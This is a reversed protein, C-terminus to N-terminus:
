PIVRCRWVAGLLNGDQGVEGGPSQDPFVGYSSPGEVVSIQSVVGGLTDDSLIAQTLSSASQPDMMSLLLSQGGINDATTVRARVSLFYQIRGKGFTLNEMFPDAPYVDVHPPTPNWILYGTATFNEIVPDATGVTGLEGQVQEALAGMVQELTAM